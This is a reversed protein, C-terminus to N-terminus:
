RHDAKPTRQKSHFTDLLANGSRTYRRETAKQREEDPVPVPKQSSFLTNICNHTQLTPTRDGGNLAVFGCSEDISCPGENCILLEVIM